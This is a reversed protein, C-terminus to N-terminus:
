FILKEIIWKIRQNKWSLINLWNAWVLIKYLELDDKKINNWVEQSDNESNIIYTKQTNDILSNINIIIEWWTLNNTFTINIEQTIEKNVAKQKIFNVTKTDWNSIIKSSRIIEYLISSWTNLEIKHADKKIDSINKTLIDEFIELNNIKQNKFNRIMDSLKIKEMFWLKDSTKSKNYLNILDFFYKEYIYTKWNINKVWDFSKTWDTTLFRSDDEKIIEIDSLNKINNENLFNILELKKDQEFDWKIDLKESNIFVLIKSLPLNLIRNEEDWDVNIVSQSKEDDILNITLNKFRDELWKRKVIELINKIWVIEKEWLTNDSVVKIWKDKLVSMIWDQLISEKKYNNTQKEEIYDLNKIILHKTDRNYDMWKKDINSFFTSTSEFHISEYIESELLDKNKSLYTKFKLLTSKDALELIFDDSLTISKKNWIENLLSIVNKTIIEDARNKLLFQYIDWANWLISEWDNITFWPNQIHNSSVWLVSIARKKNEEWFVLSWKQFEIFLSKEWIWLSFWRMTWNNQVTENSFWIWTLTRKFSSWLQTFVWYKKQYEEKTVKKKFDARSFINVLNTWWSLEFDYNSTIEKKYRSIVNIWNAWLETRLSFSDYLNSWESIIVKWWKFSLWMSEFLSKLKNNGTFIDLNSIYINASLYEIFDDWFMDKPLVNIWLKKCFDMWDQKNKNWTELLSLFDYQIQLNLKNLRLNYFDGTIWAWLSASLDKYKLDFSFRTNEIISKIDLYEWEMNFYEWVSFKTQAKTEKKWTWYNTIIYESYNNFLESETSWKIVKAEKQSNKETLIIYSLGTKLDKTITFILTNNIIWSKTEFWIDNLKDQTSYKKITNNEYSITYNTKLSDFLKNIIIERTKKVEDLSLNESWNKELSDLYELIKKIDQSSTKEDINIWLIEINNNEKTHNQFIREKSEM